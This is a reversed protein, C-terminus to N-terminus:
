CWAKRWYGLEGDARGTRRCFVCNSPSLGRRPPLDSLQYYPDQLEPATELARIYAREANDWSDVSSSWLEGLQVWTKAAETPRESSMLYQAM